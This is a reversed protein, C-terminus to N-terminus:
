TNFRQFKLTWFVNSLTIAPITTNVVRLKTTSAVTPTFPIFGTPFRTIFKFTPVNGNWMFEIVTLTNSSASAPDYNMVYLTGIAQFLGAFDLILTSASSALIIPTSGSNINTVPTPAADNPGRSYQLLGVNASDQMCYFIPNATTTPHVPPPGNNIIPTTVTNHLGNNASTDSFAYHELGFTTDSSNFNNQIPQQSAVLTDGAGPINLTFTM